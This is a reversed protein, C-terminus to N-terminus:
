VYVLVSCSFWKFNINPITPLNVQLFPSLPSSGRRTATGICGPVDFEGRYHRSAADSTSLVVPSQIGHACHGISSHCRGFAKPPVHAAGRKGDVGPAGRSAAAVTPSVSVSIRVAGISDSGCTGTGSENSLSASRCRPTTTTTPGHHHFLCHRRALGFGLGCRRAAGCQNRAWHGTSLCPRFYLFEFICFYVSLSLLVIQGPSRYAAFPIFLFFGFFVRTTVLLSRVFTCADGVMVVGAMEDPSAVASGPSFQCLPFTTRNAGVFRAWEADDVWEDWPLRPFANRFWAKTEVVSHLSWVEHDYPAIVNAPRVMDPDKMPLMGLSLRNRPGTNIGRLAVSTTSKPVYVLWDETEKTTCNPVSFHSPIQLAKLQLGTAPSHYKRLQFSRSRSHLWNNSKTTSSVSNSLCRRVISDIGDAGVVLAGTYVSGDQCQVSVVGDANPEILTVKKMPIVEIRGFTSDGAENQEICCEQLLEVMQHRPIWYSSRNTMPGQGMLPLKQIPTAPDAPVVVLEGMTGLPPAWGFRQLKNLAEPPALGNKEQFWDLGRANINYLYSRSPDYKAVSTTGASQELVTVTFSHPPRSLTLAAALAIPGGGVIVCDKNHSAVSCDIARTEPVVASPNVLATVMMLQLTFLVSTLMM